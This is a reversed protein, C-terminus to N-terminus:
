SPTSGLLRRLEAMRESIVDLDLADEAQSVYVQLDALARVWDGKEAWALGRDRYEGWAQPQLTRLWGLGGQKLNQYDTLIEIVQGGADNTSLLLNVGGVHGCAVM